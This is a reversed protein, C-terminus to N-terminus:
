GGGPHVFVGSRTYPNLRFPHVFVRPIRVEGKEGKFSDDAIKQILQLAAEDPLRLIAIVCGSRVDLIAIEQPKIELAVALADIFEGRRPQFESLTTDLQLYVNM